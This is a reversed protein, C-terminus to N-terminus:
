ISHAYDKKDIEFYNIFSSLYKEFKNCNYYYSCKNTTSSNVNFICHFCFDSIYCSSCQKQYATRLEEYIKSIHDVDLQFCENVSDWSGLPIKQDITECPYIFGKVTLFLKRSFPICTKQAPLKNYIRDHMFVGSKNNKLQLVKEIFIDIENNGPVKIAIKGASGEHLITGNKTKYIM